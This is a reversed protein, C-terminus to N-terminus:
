SGAPFDASIELTPEVTIGGVTVHFEQPLKVPMRCSAEEHDDYRPALFFVGPIAGLVEQTLSQMAAPDPWGRDDLPVTTYGLRAQVEGPVVRRLETLVAEVWDRKEAESLRQFREFGAGTPGFVIETKVLAQGEPRGGPVSSCAALPLAALLLALRTTAKM